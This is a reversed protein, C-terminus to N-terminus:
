QNTYLEKLSCMNLDVHNSCAHSTLVLAGKAALVHNIFSGAPRKVTPLKVELMKSYGNEFMCFSKFFQLSSGNVWWWWFFFFFSKNVMQLWEICKLMINVSLLLVSVNEGWQLDKEFSIPSLFKLLLNKRLQNNYWICYKWDKMIVSSSKNVLGGSRCRSFNIHLDPLM